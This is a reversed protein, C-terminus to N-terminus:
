IDSIDQDVNYQLARLAQLEAQVMTLRVLLELDKDFNVDDPSHTLLFKDVVDTVLQTTIDYDLLENDDLPDIEQIVRHPPTRIVAYLIDHEDWGKWVGRIVVRLRGDEDMVSFKPLHPTTTWDLIKWHSPLTYQCYVCDGEMNVTIGMKSLQAHQDVSPRPLLEPVPSQDAGDESSPVPSAAITTVCLIVLIVSLLIIPGKM